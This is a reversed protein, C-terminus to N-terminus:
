LSLPSECEIRKANSLKTVADKEDSTRENMCCFDRPEDFGLAKRVEGM